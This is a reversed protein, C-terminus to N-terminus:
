VMTGLVNGIGVGVAQLVMHEIAIDTNGTAAILLHWKIDASM